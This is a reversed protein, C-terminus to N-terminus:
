GTRRRTGATRRGAPKRGAAGARAAARARRSIVRTGQVVTGARTTIRVAVRVAGAPLRLRTAVARGADREFTGDGDLDWQVRARPQDLLSNSTDLRVVAGPARSRGDVDVVARETPTCGRFDTCAPADVVELEAWPFEALADRAGKGGLLPTVPNRRGPRPQETYLVNADATRDRVVIGFRQAAEALMRVMPVMEIRDLDLAPDLRFRVGEPIAHRDTLGGDTRQAPWLWTSKATDTLAMSLAHDISGRRLDDFTVVGATMSVSSATVNWGHTARRERAPDKAPSRWALPSAVGRDAAVDQTVGGWKATWRGTAADRTANWFEWQTVTGDPQQQLVAFNRDSCTAVEAEAPMPVSAWAQILAPDMYSPHDLAVPVRPTTADAWFIPMGCSTTNIWGGRAAM